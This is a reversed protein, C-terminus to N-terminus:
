KECVCGLMARLREVAAHMRSLVTGLPQNLMEAIEEFKLDTSLRLALVERQTEPLEGIAARLAARRELLVASEIPEADAAPRELVSDAVNQEDPRRFRDRCLNRAITLLYLDPRECAKLAAMRDAARCFTEAVIEEADVRSRYVHRVYALLRPGCARVLRDLLAREEATLRRGNARLGMLEGCGM